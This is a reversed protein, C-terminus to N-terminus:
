LNWAWHLRDKIGSKVSIQLCIRPSEAIILLKKTALFEVFFDDLKSVEEDKSCHKFRCRAPFSTWVYSIKAKVCWSQCLMIDLFIALNILPKLFSIKLNEVNFSCPFKHIKLKWLSPVHCTPALFCDAPLGLLVKSSFFRITRFILFHDFIFKYGNCHQQTSNVQGSFGSKSNVGRMTIIFSLPPFKVEFVWLLTRLRSSFSEIKECLIM